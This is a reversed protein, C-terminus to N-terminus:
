EELSYKSLLYDNTQENQEFEFDSEYDSGNAQDSDDSEAKKEHVPAELEVIHEEVAVYNEAEVESLDSLNTNPEPSDAKSKEPDQSDTNPEQPTNVTVINDQNLVENDNADVTADDDIVTVYNNVASSVHKINKSVRRRRRVSPTIQFLLLLVHVCM